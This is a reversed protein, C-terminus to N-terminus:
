TLGVIMQRCAQFFVPLGVSFNTITKSIFQITIIGPNWNSSSWLNGDFKIAARINPHRQVFLRLCYRESYIYAINSSKSLSCHSAPFHGLPLKYNLDYILQLESDLKTVFHAILVSQGKSVLFIIELRSKDTFVYPSRLLSM